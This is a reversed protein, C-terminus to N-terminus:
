FYVMVGMLKNKFEAGDRVLNTIIYLLSTIIHDYYQFSSSFGNDCTRVM